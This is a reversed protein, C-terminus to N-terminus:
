LMGNQKLLNDKAKITKPSIPTPRSTTEMYGLEFREMIPELARRRFYQCDICYRILLKLEYQVVGELVDHMVDPILSSCIDLYQLSLLASRFNIGYVVSYKPDSEVEDCQKIHEAM